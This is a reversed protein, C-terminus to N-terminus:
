INVVGNVKFYENAKPRFLLFVIIILLLTKVYFSLSFGTVLLTLLSASVLWIIILSRGWAYGKLMLIGAIVLVLSALYSFLIQFWLPVSVLEYNEHASMLGELGEYAEHSVLIFIKPLLM